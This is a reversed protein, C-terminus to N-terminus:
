SYDSPLASTQKFKHDRSLFHWEAGNCLTIENKIKISTDWLADQEYSDRCCPSPKHTLTDTFHKLLLDDNIERKTSVNKKTIWECPKYFRFSDKGLYSTPCRCPNHSPSRSSSREWGQTGGRAALWCLPTSSHPHQGQRRDPSGM